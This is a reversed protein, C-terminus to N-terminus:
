DSLARPRSLAVESGEAVFASVPPRALEGALGEGYLTPDGRFAVAEAPHVQWRLRDLRYEM